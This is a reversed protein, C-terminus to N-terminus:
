DNKPKDLQAEADDRAKESPADASREVAAIETGDTAALMHPEAGTLPELSAALPLSRAWPERMKLLVYAVFLVLGVIVAATVYFLPRADAYM